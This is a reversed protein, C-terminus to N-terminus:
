ASAAGGANDAQDSQDDGAQDDGAQGAQDGGLLAATAPHIVRGGHTIVVGAQIEDGPDIALSGDSTLHQLLATM